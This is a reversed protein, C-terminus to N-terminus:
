HSHCLSFFFFIICVNFVIIIYVLPPPQITYGDSTGNIRREFDIKNNVGYRKLSGFGKEGGKKIYYYHYVHKARAVRVAVNFGGCASNSFIINDWVVTLKNNSFFPKFYIGSITENKDSVRFINDAVRPWVMRFVFVSRGGTTTLTSYLIRNQRM